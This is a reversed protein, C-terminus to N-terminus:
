VKMQENKLLYPNLNLKFFFSRQVGSGHEASQAGRKM